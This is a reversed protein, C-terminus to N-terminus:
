RGSPRPPLPPLPPPHFIGGIRPLRKLIIARDAPDLSAALDIWDLTHDSSGGIAEEYDRAAERLAALDVPEKGAVEQFRKRAASAQEGRAMSVAAIHANLAQARAHGAATMGIFPDRAAFPTQAAQGLAAGGTVLALAAM